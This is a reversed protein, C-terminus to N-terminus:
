CFPSFAVLHLLFVASSYTDLLWWSDACSDCFTDEWLSENLKTNCVFGDWQQGLFIQINEWVYGWVLVLVCTGTAICFRSKQEKIEVSSKKSFKRKWFVLTHQSLWVCCLASNPIVHVYGPLLTSWTWGWRKGMGSKRENAICNFKMSIVVSHVVYVFNNLKQTNFHATFYFMIHWHRYSSFPVSTGAAQLWRREGFVSQYLLMGVPLWHPWAKTDSLVMGSNM